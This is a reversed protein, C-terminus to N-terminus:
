GLRWGQSLLAVGAFVLALADVFALGVDGAFRAPAHRSLNVRLLNM